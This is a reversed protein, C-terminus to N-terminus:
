RTLIFIIITPKNTNGKALKKQQFKKTIGKRNIRVTGTAEFGKDHLELYLAPSSYFNDTYIHYGKGALGSSLSM